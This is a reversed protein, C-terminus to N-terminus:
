HTFFGAIFQGTLANIAVSHHYLAPYNTSVSVGAGAQGVFVIPTPETFTVIWAPVEDITRFPITVGPLPISEPLTFLALVATYPHTPNDALAAAQVAQGEPIEPTVGTPPMLIVQHNIEVGTSPIVSPVESVDVVLTPVPPPPTTSDASARSLGIVAGGALALIVTASLLTRKATM